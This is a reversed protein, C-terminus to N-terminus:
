ASESRRQERLGVSTRVFERIMNVTSSREGAANLILLGISEYSEPALVGGSVGIVGHAPSSTASTCIAHHGSERGNWRLCEELRVQALNCDTVAYSEVNAILSCLTVCCLPVCLWKFQLCNKYNAFDQISSDDQVSYLYDFTPPMNGDLYARLQM